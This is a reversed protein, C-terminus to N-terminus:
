SHVEFLTYNTRKITSLYRQVAVYINRLM